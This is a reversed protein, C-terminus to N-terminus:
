LSSTKALLFSAYWGPNSLYHEYLQTIIAIKVLGAVNKVDLTQMLRTRHGEITRKSHGLEAAIQKSSAEECIRILIYKDYLSLSNVREILNIKDMVQTLKLVREATDQCFYVKHQCAMEVAKNWELSSMNRSVIVDVELEILQYLIFDPTDKNLLIICPFIQQIAKIKKKVALSDFDFMACDIILLGQSLGFNASSVEDLSNLIRYGNCMPHAKALQSCGMAYIAQQDCIFVHRQEQQNFYNKQM